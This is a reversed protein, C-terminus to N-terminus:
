DEQDFPIDHSDPHEIAANLDDQSLDNRAVLQQLVEIRKPLRLYRVSKGHDKRVTSSEKFSVGMFRGFNSSLKMRDYRGHAASWQSLYSEYHARFDEQKIMLDEYLPWKIPPKSSMKDVSLGTIRGNKIIDFFFDEAADRSMSIQEQKWETMPPNYLDTRSLGYKAPDFKLLHNLWIRCGKNDEETFWARLKSFYDADQKVADSTRIVCFRRDDADLHLAHPNNSTFLYRCYNPLEFADRGKPEVEMSESTIRDKLVEMSQKDGVFLAEEGLYLLKGSKHANFKGAIMDKRPSKGYYPALMRGLGYECIISKGTGAGGLIAVATHPKDGPNQFIDAIWYTLWHFIQEDGSCWINLIHDMVPSPDGELPKMKFGTFLNFNGEHDTLTTIRPNFTFGSFNRIDPWNENWFKFVNVREMKQGGKGNPQSISVNHNSFRIKMAKDTSFVPSSKERTKEIDLFMVDKGMIVRGFQRDMDRLQKLLQPPINQDLNDKRLDDYARRVTKIDVGYWGAIRRLEAVADDSVYEANIVEDAIVQALPRSSLRRDRVAEVIDHEFMDLKTEAGKGFRRIIPMSMPSEALLEIIEEDKYAIKHNALQFVAQVAQKAAKTMKIVTFLAKRAENHDSMDINLFTEVDKDTDEEEEELEVGLNSPLLAPDIGAAAAADNVAKKDIEVIGLDDRTIYGLEIFRKLYDLRRRQKVDKCSAHSCYITWPFEDNGNVAYTGEGGPNTHEEEFPCCIVYGGADRTKKIGDSGDPLCRLLMEELDFTFKNRQDWRLLDILNQNKDLIRYNAADYENAPRNRTVDAVAARPFKEWDLLPGEYMMAKWAGDEKHTPMYHLRAADACAPDYPLGIADGVGKYISTYIALAQSTVVDLDMLVIPKKLPFVIRMKDIPDHHVVWFIGDGGHQVDTKADFTINTLHDKGKEKLYASISDLTPTKPWQKAEAEKAYAGTAVLTTTTKHSYTTYMIAHMGLDDLKADLEEVTMDCDIDFVLFDVQTVATNKREGGALVGPVFCWGDKQPSVEHQFVGPLQDLTYEQTKWYKNTKATKSLSIQFKQM